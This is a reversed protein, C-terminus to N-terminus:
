LRCFCICICYRTVSVLCWHLCFSVNLPLFLLLGRNM